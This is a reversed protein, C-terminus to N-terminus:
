SDADDAGPEVEWYPVRIPADPAPVIITIPVRGRWNVVDGSEFLRSGNVTVTWDGGPVALELPREDLPDLTHEPGYDAGQAGIGEVVQVRMPRDSDNRADVTIESAGLFGCGALLAAM